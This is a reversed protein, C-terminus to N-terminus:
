LMPPDHRTDADLIEIINPHKLDPLRGESQLQLRLAPELAVKVAYIRGPREHHTAQWVQSFGGQGLRRQLVYNGIRQAPELIYTM